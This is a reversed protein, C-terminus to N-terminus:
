RIDLSLSCLLSVLNKNKNKNELKENNYRYTYPQLQICLTKASTLGTTSLLMHTHPPPRKLIMWM